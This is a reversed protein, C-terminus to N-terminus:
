DNLFPRDVQEMGDFMILIATGHHSVLLGAVTGASGGTNQRDWEQEEVSEPQKRPGGAHQLNQPHFFSGSFHRPTFRIIM